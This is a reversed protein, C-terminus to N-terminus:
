KWLEDDVQAFARTAAEFARLDAASWTGALASLGNDIPEGSAVGLAQGLADIATKNLSSDRRRRERDLARMVAPPVSRLTLHKPSAAMFHLRHIDRYATLGIGTAAM